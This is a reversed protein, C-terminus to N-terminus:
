IGSGPYVSINSPSFHKCNRFSGIWGPANNPTSTGAPSMQSVRIPPFYHHQHLRQLFMSLMPIERYNCDTREALSDKSGAPVRNTQIALSLRRHKNSATHQLPPADSTLQRGRPGRPSVQALQSQSNVTIQCLNCHYSSSSSVAGYSASRRRPEPVSSVGADKEETSDEVLEPNSSHSEELDVSLRLIFTPNINNHSREAWVM